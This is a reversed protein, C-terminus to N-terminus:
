SEALLLIETKANATPHKTLNLLILRLTRNQAALFRWINALFRGSPGNVNTQLKAIKQSLNVLIACMQPLHSVLIERLLAATPLSNRMFVVFCFEFHTKACTTPTNQACFCTKKHRFVLSKNGLPEYYSISYDLISLGSPRPQRQLPPHTPAPPHLASRSGGPRKGFVVRAPLGFEPSVAADLNLPIARRRLGFGRSVKIVNSERALAAGRSRSGLRCPM